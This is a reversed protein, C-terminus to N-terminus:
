GCGKFLFVLGIIFMVIVLGDISNSINRLEKAIREHRIQKIPEPQSNDPFEFKYTTYIPGKETSTSTNTM